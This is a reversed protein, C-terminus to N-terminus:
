APHYPAPKWLGKPPLANLPVSFNWGLCATTDNRTGGFSIVPENSCLGTATNAIRVTSFRIRNKLVIQTEKTVTEHWLNV